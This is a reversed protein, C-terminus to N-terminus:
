FFHLVSPQAGFRGAIVCEGCVQQYDSRAQRVLTPIAKVDDALHETSLTMRPKYRAITGQGGQLANREAGEIDMKIFDVRPLNLEVVLKDITTVKFKVQRGGASKIVFSDGVSNDQVTMMLEDDQHWVGKPYLIVTGTAIQSAFNRRLCELNETVPEIAVVLKAGRSLAEHTFAGINAGCDLVVDGFKVGTLGSGYLREEEEALIMHLGTGKPSWFIGRPTGWKDLRGDSEIVHSNVAFYKELQDGETFAEITRHLGCTRDRGTLVIGFGKTIAKLSTPFSKYGAFEVGSIVIFVGLASVSKRM